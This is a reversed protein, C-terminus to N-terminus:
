RKKRLLMADGFGWVIGKLFENEWNRNVLEYLQQQGGKVSGAFHEGGHISIYVMGSDLRSLWREPHNLLHSHNAVFMLKDDPLKWLIRPLYGISVNDLMVASAQELVAAPNPRKILFERFAKASNIGPLLALICGM